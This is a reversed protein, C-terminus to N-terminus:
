PAKSLDPDREPEVEGLDMALLEQIPPWFVQHTVGALALETEDADIGLAAFGVPVFDAGSAAADAM